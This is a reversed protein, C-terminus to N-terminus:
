GICTLMKLGNDYEIIERNGEKYKRVIKPVVSTGINNKMVAKFQPNHSITRGTSLTYSIQKNRAILEDAIYEKLRDNEEIVSNYEKISEKIVYVGLITALTAFSGLIIKGTTKM